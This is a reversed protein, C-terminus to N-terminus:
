YVSKFHFISVVDNHTLYVCFNEATTKNSFALQSVDNVDFFFEADKECVTSTLIHKYRIHAYVYTTKEGPSVCLKWRYRQNDGSYIAM